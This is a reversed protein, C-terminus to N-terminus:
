RGQRLWDGPTVAEVGLRGPFDRVNGTIVPCGAAFAAAIFPWDDPDPLALDPPRAPVHVWQALGTILDILERVGQAPLGLRPRALVAAYEAVVPACVVPILRGDRIEDVVAAPPTARKLLASVLVNTDVVARRAM